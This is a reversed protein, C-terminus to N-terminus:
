EFNFQYISSTVKEAIDEHYKELGIRLDGGEKAIRVLIDKLNYLIRDNLEEGWFGKINIGNKKHLRYNQPMNDVIIMKDLDRGIRSLDKVFDNEIIVNHQRFFKYEFYKKKEEINDILNEAYDQSSATFLIIEYFIQVADLFEFLGPRLKLVGEGRNESKLRFNLLTEELDLILTYRKNSPQRIYPKKVSHFNPNDKLYLSALFSGNINEERLLFTRYYYNIDEYNKQSIKKFLILLSENSSSKFHELIINLNKIIINTNYIIKEVSTNHNMIFENNSFKNNSINSYINNNSLMNNLKYIWKNNKNKKSVKKIIYKCFIIYNNVILDLTEKLLSFCKEVLTTDFSYDYCILISMLTYNISYISEKLESNFILNQIGKPLESNYFYNWFEFCENAMKKNNILSKVIEYLKEGVIMLEEFNILFHYNKISKSQSKNNPSSYEYIFNSNIEYKNNNNNYKKNNINSYFRENVSIPSNTLNINICNEKEYIRNYKKIKSKEIINKVSNNLSRSKKANYGLYFSSQEVYSRIPTNYFNNNYYNSIINKNGGTYIFKKNIPTNSNMYNLKISHELFSTNNSNDRSKKNSNYLFNNNNKYNSESLTITSCFRDDSKMRQFGSKKNKTLIYSNKKIIKKKYTSPADFSYNKKIPYNKNKNKNLNNNIKRKHIINESSKNNIKEKLLGKDLKGINDYTREHNYYKIKHKPLKDLNLESQNKNKDLLNAKSNNNMKNIKKMKNLKLLRLIKKRNEADISYHNRNKDIIEQKEKQEFLNVKGGLNENNINRNHIINCLNSNISNKENNNEEKHFTFENYKNSTKDENFTATNHGDNNINNEINKNRQRFKRAKALRKIDKLKKEPTKRRAPSSEDKINNNKKYKIEKISKTGSIQLTLSNRDDKVDGFDDNIKSYRNELEIEDPNINSYNNKKSIYIKEYNSYKSHIQDKNSYLYSSNTYFIYNQNEDNENFICKYKEKKKHIKNIKENSKSSKM